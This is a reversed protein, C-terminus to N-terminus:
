ERRIENNEEDYDLGLWDCVTPFDFWMLDNIEAESPIEEWWVYNEITELEDSTLKKANIAAYGWFEFDKLSIEKKITM